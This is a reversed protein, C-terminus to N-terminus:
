DRARIRAGDSSTCTAITPGVPNTACNWDGIRPGSGNLASLVISQARACRIPDGGAALTTLTYEKGANATGSGAIPDCHTTQSALSGASAPSVAQVAPSSDGGGAVTVGIAVCAALGVVSVAAMTFGPAHRRRRQGRRAPQTASHAERPSRDELPSAAVPATSEAAKRALEGAVFGFGVLIWLYRPYAAHLFLGAVLFSVLSVFIGEALLGDRGDLWRRGRWAGRLALWLVAFLACGGVIGTEALSGLYLSHAERATLRPDLGIQQSYSLYHRSYNGPGVGFIMHDRFMELAALNESKRGQIADNSGQTVKAVEPSASSSSLGIRAQLGSPMFFLGAAVVLVTIGIGIDRPIPALLLILGFAAATAVLAGRSGTLGTAALCAILIGVALGRSARDRASLALYVALVATAVLVQGFFNPDLPGGVRFVGGGEPRALAFGGFDNDYAGTAAQLLNVIALAGGAVAVTWVARRLWVPRDLLVVIAVVTLAYGIFDWIQQLSANVDTTFAASTAYAVGLILVAILEGPFSFSETRQVHRWALAAVIILLLLQSVEPGGVTHGIVWGAYSYLLFLLALLAWRTATFAAIVVAAGALAAVLGAVAAVSTATTVGFVVALLAGGGWIAVALGGSPSQRKSALAEM